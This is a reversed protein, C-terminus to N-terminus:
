LVGWELDFEYEFASSNLFKEIKQAWKQTDGESHLAMAFEILGENARNGSSDIASLGMNKLRQKISNTIKRRNKLGSPTLIKIEIAGVLVVM